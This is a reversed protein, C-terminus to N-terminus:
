KHKRGVFIYKVIEISIIAIFALGFLLIWDLGTLPTFKFLRQTIPIYIPLINMLMGFGVAGLLWKNSWFKIKFISLRLSRCSFIYFLSDIGLAAFVFTRIHDIDINQWKYLWVFLGFLILDTLIGIIFIITIMERDLIKSKKPRPPLKLIGDEAKEMTLSAAPLSDTILNIWLIQAATLPIPLGMMLSGFILIIETFSDALLYVIVKRINSFIVRGEKIADIITKLKNDLLILDATQKTIESGAGVAIGVDATKLAPADNVGDGTMAVVEDAKQYANVIKFKDHPSVRAFVNVKKIIKALQEESMKALREGDMISDDTVKLGMDKAIAKATLVHDGTIMVINIGAKKINKVIKKVDPRLPDRIIYFGLFIYDGGKSIQNGTTTHKKYAAALIRYGQRSYSLYKNTLEQKVSDTLLESNAKEDAYYKCLDIIREPAGKCFALKEGQHENLTFMMKEKSSFPIESLREYDSNIKVIDFKSAIAADIIAKETPSGIIRWKEKSENPNVVTSNNCLVGATFLLKEAENVRNEGLKIVRKATGIKEMKMEGTTLTGTKDVCLVSTSGLTEAAVLKRVLSNKKLIRQMGIALIVTVAVPLGEPIASVASAVSILFIETFGRGVLLGFGFIVTIFIILSLAIKRSFKQLQLQFPTKEEEEKQLIDAIHGIETNMGTDTVVALATGQSVLTGMFVMNKKEATILDKKNIAEIKKLVPESEGTLISEQVQLQNVEILRADAPVQNGAELYIIDGPVLEEAPVQVKNGNRFAVATLKLYKKLEFLSKQAKSEQIYGVIVNLFVAALIVGVDLWETLFASIIAAIILIYILVSKFQHFFLKLQSLPKEETLKNLGTKEIRKAVEDANLGSNSTKLKSFIDQVTFSYWAKKKPM